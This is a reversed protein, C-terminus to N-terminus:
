GGVAGNEAPAEGTKVGHKVKLHEIAAAALGGVTGAKGIEVLSIELGMNRRAWSRIEIAMLSDIVINAMEEEDMDEAGAKHKNIKKALERCIVRESEPDDLIVPDQEVKRLLVKLEDAGADSSATGTSDINAFISFRRDSGWPCRVDSDSLPRTTGLGVICSSSTPMNVKMSHPEQAQQIATQLGEVLEKESVLRVGASRMRELLPQDRSLMGVDEVPGLNIVGCPLGLGRRYQNFSDLFSNAAAYNAQGPNGATASISSFLVFFDLEADRTSNHLNWTGTVKAALCSTWQSYTMETFAGDQLVGSMHLVGRLPLPSQAIAKEVDQPETVSGCVCVVNCDQDELERIFRQDEESQGASRSLFVLSRAGREVMWTSISRGVGGLGGVLLYSSNPKLAEAHQKTSPPFEASDRPIRILIKGMHVGQQMYRFADAVERAEYVRVPRIPTLRGEDYWSSFQTIMELNIEPNERGVHVLDFGFYARNKIFPLMSLSGNSLFDRKGLEIMKGFPAVCAGPPMSYNGGRGNTERMIDIQFDANRSSFIRNRPIRITSVLYEVKEETGVTAFIEAGLVQCVRIAALGVGGCASHILVSDGKTLRSLHGLCYASTVYASPMTASDELSLEDPLKICKRAHIVARTRFLGEGLIAVRDGQKLDTVDAAVRTVIGSGEVGFEEPDGFLGMGVLIDRFNLGVYHMEVEVNSPPLERTAYPVWELTEILGFSGVGLQRATEDQSQLIKNENSLGWHCRGVLVEGRSSSFEYEPDPLADKRSIMLKRLVRCVADTAHEDFADTEFISIDLMQEQRLTRALGFVLGFRPDECTVGSLRTVWLVRHCDALNTLFIQLTVFDPESLEHLYPGDLDLLCVIWENVPMEEKLTTWNISYGQDSLQAAVQQAWPGPTETVVLTVTENSDPTARISSLLTLGEFGTSADSSGCVADNGTFGANRLCADYERASLLQRNFSGEPGTWDDPMLNALYSTVLSEHNLQHILLRGNPALLHGINRLSVDLESTSPLTNYAIILDFSKLDFGQEAPDQTIHLEKFEIDERIREQAATIAKDSPRTFIYRSYLRVGEPTKLQDLILKTAALSGCGIELIRMAPNSHGLATLLATWKLKSQLLLNFKQLYDQTEEPLTESAVIERCNQFVYRMCGSLVQFDHDEECKDYKSSIAKILLQRSESRLNAWESAKQHISDNRLSHISAQTTVWSKWRSLSLTESSEEALSSATELLYLAGLWEADRIGEQDSSSVTLSPFLADPSTLDIDSAWRIQSLAPIACGETYDQGDVPFGHVDTLSMVLKEGAMMTAHGSYFGMTGESISTQIGVKAASGGVYLHGIAAPVVIQFKRALGQAFAVPFLQLVHDMTAPHLTYRSPPPSEVNLVTASARRDRPDVTIDEFRQFHPGYHFGLRAVYKYCAKPDLVRSYKPIEQGKPVQSPGAKVQGQCHKTWGTEDCSMISFSYWEGDVIDTIPVPKLTTLIEFTQSDKLLLPSKIVMNKISYDEVEPELQRIAEGAMAVYGMGPFIVNGQLAHDVLWPVDELRLLNRWAPEIDSSEMVRSGLLEHHPNKRYRWERTVRSDHWYRTSHDWPYCPLNTLPKGKGNNITELRVPVGHVHASGAAFLMQGRSDEDNRILTPIYVPDAKLAAGQFIQRLPGSLASHPGVELFVKGEPEKLVNQVATCFRVSSELNQRWYSASLEAPTTIKANMVSSFLPVMAEGTTQVFREIHAEYEAGLARMHHSHYATSVRLKRCLIDPDSAKIKGLVKEVKEADGSLTVSQPSNECAIVVGDELFSSVDGPGLGVAAMAGKGEQSKALKGRYYSIIVASRSTLAGAAYAAAIEGSSHGVVSCPKLGWSYLLDVIAIQLATCLPQSFEAEGVRSSKGIKTLEDEISWNPGDPLEKLAQDLSQITGKIESFEAILNRGMGAWQAGQGTFVLTLAPSKNRGTHFSLSSQQMTMDPKVIAFARHSLHERRVGLTYALDHLKEPYRGLYVELDQTRKQLAAASRASTVLLRAKHCEGNPIQPAEGCFSAVSDLITHANAGGVGFCNVSVRESRGVPWPESEVPVHLKGEKFPIRPNPTDFFVNPPITKHELALVAKIVSSIGSAGEGHGVSPKVAGITVGKGEFLKAVVSVEATDGAITGTGHCEFFGTQSIDRIGAKEYAWRVLAEQSHSGPTTISPTRGDCNTSTARIVARIPDGDRIAHDLRKIYLANIAEGRGYGDAKEDFTRCTGTPSMVTNDSMTQTMIPTFILNTGAVIASSCDGSYLAQTAEHLGVLSASCGTQLTMSYEVRILVEEDFSLRNALAFQGTAIIHYRDTDQPDKSNLDLWDEGYVGVYCGIRKGRWNTEGASELCEWVVEMLQRQQPDLRGAEYGNIDFFGADFCAPDENLYYGQRTKVCHNRTPSYFSDVTYRTEPVECVGNRKEILFDWLQDPSNVGGPLRLAMGVIAVPPCVEGQRHGNPDSPCSKCISTSVVEPKLAGTQDLSGAQQHAIGAEDKM